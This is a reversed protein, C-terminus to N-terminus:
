RHGHLEGLMKGHMYDPPAIGLSTLITPALDLINADDLVARPPMDPGIALTFANPRHNGTYYPMLAYGPENSRVLGYKETLLATTIQATM